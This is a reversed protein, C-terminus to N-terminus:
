IRNNWRRKVDEWDTSPDICIRCDKNPCAIGYINGGDDVVKVAVKAKTGCNPCPLIKDDRELVRAVSSEYEETTFFM